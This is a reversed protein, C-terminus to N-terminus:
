AASFFVPTALSGWSIRHPWVGSFCVLLQGISCAAHGTNLFDMRSKKQKAWDWNIWNVRCRRNKKGIAEHQQQQRERSSRGEGTFLGTMCWRRCFGVKVGARQRRIGPCRDM